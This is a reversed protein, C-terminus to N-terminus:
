GRKSRTDDRTTNKSNRRDKDKSNSNHIIQNNVGNSRRQLHKRTNEIIQQRRANQALNRDPNVQKIYQNKSKIRSSNTASHQNKSHYTSRNPKIVSRSSRTSVYKTPHSQYSQNRKVIHKPKPKVYTKKRDDHKKKGYYAIAGIAAAGALIPITPNSVTDHKPQPNYTNNPYSPSVCSNLVSLCLFYIVNRLSFIHLFKHKLQNM